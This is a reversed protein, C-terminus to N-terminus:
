EAEETVSGRQCEGMANRLAAIWYWVWQICVALLMFCPGGGSEPATFRSVFCLLFMCVGFISIAFVRQALSRTLEKGRVCVVSVLLAAYPSLGICLAIRGAKTNSQFFKLGLAGVILAATLAMAMLILVLATAKKMRKEGIAVHASSWEDDVM